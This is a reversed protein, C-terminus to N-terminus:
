PQYTIILQPPTASEKSGLSVQGNQGENTKKILWGYNSPDGDLFDTVDATVDYEVVGAQGNTIVQSGSATAEWPHVLPNNPQGMEWETSGSCNKAQNAIQSDSACNWTAGSDSSRDAETGTGEAWDVLLRHIDVTRGVTGWNGGNDTITFRLTASLLAGEGVAEQLAAQDFRVLGRNDGASQVRIFPVAGYNRDDQGSRVHTDAQADFTMTVPEPPDFSRGTGVTSNVFIQSIGDTIGLLPDSSAFTMFAGDTTLSGLFDPDGLIPDGAANATVLGTRGTTFNRAYWGKEPTIDPTFGGLNSSGFAVVSGDGSIALSAADKWDSWGITPGNGSGDDRVDALQMQGTQMDRRYIRATGSHPVFVSNNAFAVYRGDDSIAPAGESRRDGPAGDPFASALTSTETTWSYVYTQTLNYVVFNGDASIAPHYGQGGSGIFRTVSTALDRVYFGSGVGFAIRSGNESISSFGGASEFPAGSEDISALITQQTDLSRVYLGGEAAFVVSRGDKSLGSLSGVNAADGNPLISALTTTNATRDRVFVAVLFDSNTESATDYAVYRGSGSIISTFANSTVPTGTNDLSVLEPQPAAYVPPLFVSMALLSVLLAISIKRRIM